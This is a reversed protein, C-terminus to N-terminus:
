AGKVSPALTIFDFDNVDDDDAAPEGNVTATYKEANMHRKVDAITPYEENDLVKPAGGAVQVTIQAM